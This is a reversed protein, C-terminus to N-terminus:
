GNIVEKAQCAFQARPDYTYRSNSIGKDAFRFNVSYEWSKGRTPHVGYMVQKPEGAVHLKHFSYEDGGKWSGNMLVEGAYREETAKTHFHGLNFFNIYEGRAAFASTINGTMKKVGYYPIGYHQTIGDGHSLFHTFGYIDKKIFAAHPFNCTVNKQNVLLTALATYVIYDWNNWKQKFKVEKGYRGHNGICGDIYIRRFHPALECVVQAFVHATGFTSHFINPDNTEMFEEHIIGSVMDGLMHIHLDQINFGSRMKGIIDLVTDVLFQAYITFTKFDYQALGMMENYDVVEGVHSDSILLVAAEESVKSKPISVKNPIVSPMGNVAERIAAVFREEIARQKVVKRYAKGLSASQQKVFEKKVDEDASIELKKWGEEFKERKIKKSIADFSKGPFTKLLENRSATPSIKRLIETKEERWKAM